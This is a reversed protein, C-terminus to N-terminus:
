NSHEYVGASGLVGGGVCVDYRLQVTAKNQSMNQAAKLLSQSAQLEADANIIKARRDRESEAKTYFHTHKCSRPQTHTHTHTHLHTVWISIFM